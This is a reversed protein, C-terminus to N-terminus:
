AAARVRDPLALKDLARLHTKPLSPELPHGLMRLGMAMFIVADAEDNKAIPLDLYRRVAAATVQDKDARGKGTAYMMRQNPTVVLLPHGATRLERYVSWWLGARDHVSTSRAAYAPGEIVVLAGAPVHEVIRATLRELRLCRAEWDDGKRGESQVRHLTIVGDHDRVALGTCTLSPDLGVVATM